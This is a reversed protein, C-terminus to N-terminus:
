IPRRGPRDLLLPARLPATPSPPTRDQAHLGTLPLVASTQPILVPAAASRGPCNSKGGCGVTNLVTCSFYQVPPRPEDVAEACGVAGPATPVPAPTCRPNAPPLPWRRRPVSTNTRASGSRLAPTCRSRGRVATSCCQTGRDIAAHHGAHPLGANGSCAPRGSRARAAPRTTDGVAFSRSADPKVPPVRV